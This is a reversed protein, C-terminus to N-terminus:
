RLVIAEIEQATNVKHDYGTLEDPNGYGWTVAISPIGANRATQIDVNSDGVYFCDEPQADIHKLTEWVGTPDPKNPFRKQSGVIEFILEESFFSRVIKQAIEDPKNTNIAVSIGKQRLRKVLEEMGPYISLDIQWNRTYEDLFDALVVPNLESHKDSGGLAREILAKAGNGIAKVYFARDLPQFGYKAIAKNAAFAIGGITDILTGDLDFIVAKM